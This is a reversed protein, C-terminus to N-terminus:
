NHNFVNQIEPPLYNNQFFSAERIWPLELQYSERDGDIKYTVGNGERGGFLLDILGGIVAGPIAGVLGALFVDGTPFSWLSEKYQLSISVPIYIAMTVFGIASGWLIGSCISKEKYITIAILDSYRVIIMKEKFTSWDYGKKGQSLVMLTDNAFLLSASMKQINRQFKVEKANTNFVRKKGLIKKDLLEKNFISVDQLEQYDVDNEYGNIIIAILKAGAKSINIMTDTDIGNINMKVIFYFSDTNTIQHLEAKSFHKITPFLNFYKREVPDIISGLRPSIVIEDGFSKQSYIPIVKLFLIIFIIKNTIHFASLGM